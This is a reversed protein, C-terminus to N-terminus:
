LRGLGKKPTYGMYTDKGRSGDLHIIKNSTPYGMEM